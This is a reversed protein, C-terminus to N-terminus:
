LVYKKLAPIRRLAMAGCVSFLMAAGFFFPLSLRLPFSLPTLHLFKYFVNLCVPHILYITFSMAAFSRLGKGTHAQWFPEAKWAAYVLLLSLLVTPPYNYAMQVTYGDFLRSAAMGACLAAIGAAPPWLRRGSGAMPASGGSWKVAMLYGCLYYFVYIGGDPLVPLAPAAGGNMATYKKMFPLVSSGLLLVGMLTLISWAPLVALAKKILPTFLYLFFIMYLYWMHSWSKGQLVMLFSRWPMDATFRRHTIVLELCAYPVGFVFLALLIRRCYKTLMTRFSVERDPRLFLFGSIIVFVPVCWTILDLGTLFVTKESPYASMDTTDMVGTITHLMVVACIAGARLVDLFCYRGNKNTEKYEALYEAM